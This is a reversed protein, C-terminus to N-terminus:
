LNRKLLDFLVPFLLYILEGIAIDLSTVRGGMEVTRVPEPRRGDWLRIKKDM